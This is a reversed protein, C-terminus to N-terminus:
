LYIPDHLNILTNIIICCNDVSQNILEMRSSLYYKSWSQDWVLWLLEIRSSNMARKISILLKGRCWLNDSEQKCLPKYSNKIASVSLHNSTHYCCNFITIFRQAFLLRVVKSASSFKKNRDFTCHIWRPNINKNNISTKRKNTETNFWSCEM